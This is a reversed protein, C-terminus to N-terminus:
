ERGIQADNTGSLAGKWSQLRKARLDKTPAEHKQPSTSRTHLSRAGRTPSRPTRCQQVAPKM